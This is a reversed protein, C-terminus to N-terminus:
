LTNVHIEEGTTDKALRSRSCEELLEVHVSSKTQFHVLVVKLRRSLKDVRVDHMSNPPLPPRMKTIPGVQITPAKRVVEQPKGEDPSNSGFM